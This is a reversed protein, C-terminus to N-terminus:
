LVCYHVVEVWSSLLAAYFGLVSSIDVWPSEGQVEACLWFLGRQLDSPFVLLCLFVWLFIWVFGWFVWVETECRKGLIRGFTNSTGAGSGDRGSSASPAPVSGM